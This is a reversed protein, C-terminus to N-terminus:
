GGDEVDKLYQYVVPFANALENPTLRLRYHETEPTHDYPESIQSTFKARRGELWNPFENLTDFYVGDENDWTGYGALYQQYLDDQDPGLLEYSDPDAEPSAWPVVISATKAVDRSGLFSGRSFPTMYPPEEYEKNRDLVGVQYDTRSSMKNVWLMLDIVVPEGRVARNIIPLDTELAALRADLLTAENALRAVKRAAQNDLVNRKPVRVKYYETTKEHEYTDGRTWYCVRSEVDVVVLLVSVSHSRWYEVTTKKIDVIWSDGKSPSLYSPGSKVQVSVLKGTMEEAEGVYEVTEIHGDIGYDSTPLERFVFGLGGDLRPKTVTEELIALGRREKRGHGVGPRERQEGM